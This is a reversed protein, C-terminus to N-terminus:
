ATSPSSQQQPRVRFAVQDMTTGDIIFKVVYRKGPIWPLPAVMIAIPMNFSIGPSEGPPRGVDFETAIKFPQEGVPTPVMVAQGDEDELLVELKRRRNTEEWDVEIIGTIAFPQPQPGIQTFGGGLMFLMGERVEASTALILRVRM